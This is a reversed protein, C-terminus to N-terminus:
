RRAPITSPAREKFKWGETTRVVIDECWGVSELVVESAQRRFVIVRCRHRINDGEAELTPNSTVHITTHDRTEFWEQLARRGAIRDGKSVVAGDDAFTDLWPQVDGDDFSRNYRGVLEAIEIISYTPDITMSKEERSQSM